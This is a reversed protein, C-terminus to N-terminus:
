LVISSWLIDRFTSQASVRKSVMKATMDTYMRTLDYKAGSSSIETLNDIIVSLLTTSDIPEYGAHDRHDYKYPMSHLKIRGESLSQECGLAHNKFVRYCEHPRLVWSPQDLYIGFYNVMCKLYVGFGVFVMVLRRFATILANPLSYQHPHGEKPRRVEDQISQIM